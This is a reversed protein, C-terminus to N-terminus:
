DKKGSHPVGQSYDEQLRGLTVHTYSPTTSRSSQGLLEQVIRIDAGSNLMGTAFTHRFAHPSVHSGTGEIGTYRSVIYWIGHASLATGKQSLFIRSVEGVCGKEAQPFRASREKLYLMLANRADQEFYVRRDKKGKGTVVASRFDSTFDQFKLSALESVRCGSRFLM